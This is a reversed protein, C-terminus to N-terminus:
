IEVTAAFGVSRDRVVRVGVGVETDDVTTEVRGDRVVVVQSRIREIRVEADSCGLTVARELAAARIDELPLGSFSPDIPV